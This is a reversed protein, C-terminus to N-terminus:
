ANTVIQSGEEPFEPSLTESATTTGSLRHGRETEVLGGDVVHALGCSRGAGAGDVVEAGVHAQDTM